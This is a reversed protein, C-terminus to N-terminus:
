FQRREFKYGGINCSFARLIITKTLETAGTSTVTVTIDKINSTGTTLIGGPVYSISTNSYNAADSIYNVATAISVTTKEIYDKGGTGSADVVLTTDTFDDLDDKVTDGADSGIPSANIESISGCKFTRSGNNTIPVGVRRYNTTVNLESDGGTILVPPTCSENTDQEDWDYTLLMSVRSSAENIGEQQLAVTVSKSATSVLMPAGMMVIGMIVIAFILEIMAIAPRKLNTFMKGNWANQKKVTLIM